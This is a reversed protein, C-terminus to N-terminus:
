KGPSPGKNAVLGDKVASHANIVDLWDRVRPYPSIDLDLENWTRLWTFAAIDAISYDQTAIFASNNLRGDVV